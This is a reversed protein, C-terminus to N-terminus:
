TNEADWRFDEVNCIGSVDIMVFNHIVIAFRFNNKRKFLITMYEYWCIPKMKLVANVLLSCLGSNCTLPQLLRKVSFSFRFLSQHLTIKSSSSCPSGSCIYILHKTWFYSQQVQLKDPRINYGLNPLMRVPQDPSSPKQLFKRSKGLCKSLGGNQCVEPWTILM